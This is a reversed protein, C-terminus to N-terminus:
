LLGLKEGENEFDKKLYKKKLILDYYDTTTKSNNSHMTWIQPSKERCEKIREKKTKTKDSKLEYYLWSEWYHEQHPAEVIIAIQWKFFVFSILPAYEFRYEEFKTKWGLDVIDLGFKKSIPKLYGPKDKCDVWKRPFFYPTGIAIKGFYWKLKFRKFPSFLAKIHKFKKM